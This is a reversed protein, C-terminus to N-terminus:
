GGQTAKQTDIKKRHWRKQWTWPRHPRSLMDAFGLVVPPTSAGVAGVWLWPFQVATDAAFALDALGEVVRLVVRSSGNPGASDTEGERPGKRIHTSPDAPAPCRRLCGGRVGGPDRLLIRILVTCTRHAIRKHTCHHRSHITWM